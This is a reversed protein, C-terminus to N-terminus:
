KISLEKMLLKLHIIKDFTSDEKIEKLTDPVLLTKVEIGEKKQNRRKGETM